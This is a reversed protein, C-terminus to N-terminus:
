NNQRPLNDHEKEKEKLLQNILELSRELGTISLQGVNMVKEKKKKPAKVKTKRIAKKLRAERIGLHITLRDNDPMDLISPKLQRINM